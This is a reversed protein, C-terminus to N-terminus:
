YDCLLQKNRRLFTTSIKARIAGNAKINIPDKLLIETYKEQLEYDEATEVFQNRSRQIMEVALDHLEDPTNEHVLIGNLEYQEKIKTFHGAGSKLIELFTMYRKEHMLWYKKTIYICNQYYFPTFFWPVNNTVVLPKRFSSALAFFGCSDGFYFSCQSSLYIDLFETRYKSAYDIIYDISDDIKTTVDVSTRIVSYGCSAFYKAANFFNEIHTNRYIQNKSFKGDRSHLLVFKEPTINHESLFNVGIKNESPLFVFFPPTDLLTGTKDNDHGDFECSRISYSLVNLFSVNRCIVDCWYLLHALWPTVIYNPLARSWMRQVTKNSILNKDPYYIFLTRKHKNIRIDLLHTELNGILHGLQSTYTFVFRLKFIPNILRFFLLIPGLMVGYFWNRARGKFNKMEHKNNSFHGM